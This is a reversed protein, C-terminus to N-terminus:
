EDYEKLLYIERFITVNPSTGANVFEYSWKGWNSSNIDFLLNRNNVIDYTYVAPTNNYTYIIELIIESQENITLNKPNAVEWNIVVSKCDSDVDFFGGMGQNQKFTDSSSIITVKNSQQTSDINQETCGNFLCVFLLILIISLIIKKKM